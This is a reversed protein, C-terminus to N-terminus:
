FAAQGRVVLMNSALNTPNGSSDRGLNNRNADYEVSLRVGPLSVAVVAAITRYTFTTPVLVRVPDTSDLDPNYTDFRLGVAARGLIDQTLAAYGGFERVNRSLPGFPDAPVLGRDLNQAWYAEGTFTTVGVGPVAVALRLDAGYAFREFNRSPLSAVGPATVIEGADLVGNQNRDNWQITTKTAPTGAHFGKGSLGSVGAAIRVREGMATDVGLRGAVDKAANPDRGPWTREGLPEGNQVAIAYRVFRWGGSLRAGLDFEGPFLAREANSREMFLRDRDSERVEFGFPIKFLGVTLMALPVDVGPEPEVQPLKVSVEAGILRATTGNVTNGDLELASAVFERDISALLRARRILFRQDNLLAGNGSNVDDRSAQNVANWDAQVYGTFRLGALAAAHAKEMKEQIAIVEDARQEREAGLEASVADLSVRLGEASERLSQIEARLQADAPPAAPAQATESV